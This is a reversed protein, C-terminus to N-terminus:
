RPHADQESINVDDQEIHDGIPIMLHADLKIGFSHKNELHAHRDRFHRPFICELEARDSGVAPSCM